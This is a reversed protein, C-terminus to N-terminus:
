RHVPVCVQSVQRRRVRRYGDIRRQCCRINKETQVAAERSASAGCATLGLVTAGALLGALLRKMMNIEERKQIHIERQPVGLM